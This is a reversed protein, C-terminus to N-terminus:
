SIEDLKYWLFIYQVRFNRIPFINWRESISKYSQGSGDPNRENREFPCRSTGSPALLVRM